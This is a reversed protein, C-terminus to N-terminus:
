IFYLTECTKEANVFINGTKTQGTAGAANKNIRFQRLDNLSSKATSESMKDGSPNESELKAACFSQSINLASKTLNNLSCM